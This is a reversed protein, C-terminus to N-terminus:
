SSSECLARYAMLKMVHPAFPCACSFPCWRTVLTAYVGTMSMKESIERCLISMRSRHIGVCPGLRPTHTPCHVKCCSFHRDSPLVWVGRCRQSCSSFFSFVYTKSTEKEMNAKWLSHDCGELVFYPQVDVKLSSKRRQMRDKGFGLM